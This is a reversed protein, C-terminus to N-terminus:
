REASGNENEPNTGLEEVTYTDREKNYTVKYTGSKPNGDEDLLISTVLDDQKSINMMCEGLKKLNKSAAEKGLTEYQNSMLYFMHGINKIKERQLVKKLM